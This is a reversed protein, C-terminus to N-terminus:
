KKEAGPKPSADASLKAREDKWAKADDPKDTSEALEILRNLAEGLRPKGQPPIKDARQKMGEYGSRLLLTAETTKRPSSAGGIMSKTNFTTWAEPEAKERIALCERLLPEAEAWSKVDLLISGTQALLAALQLSGAPLAARGEALMERALAAAKDAQGISIYAELLHSNVERLAPYKRSARHADELLPLADAPRRAEKFVVGLNAKALWTDPHDAGFKAAHRRFSEEFLPIARDPKGALAYDHALSNMCKLTGPHDPGLKVRMRALTDERLSLGRDIQGVGRYAGALNNMSILTLPHDPGVKTKLLALTQEHLSLARDLQGLAEYASALNNM